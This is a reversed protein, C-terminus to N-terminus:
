ASLNTKLKKNSYSSTTDKNVVTSGVNSYKYTNEDALDYIIEIGGMPQFTHGEREIKEM